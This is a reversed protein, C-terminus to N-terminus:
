RDAVSPYTVPTAVGTCRPRVRVVHSITMVSSSSRLTHVDRSVQMSRSIGAWYPFDLFPFFSFATGPKRASTFNRGRPLSVERSRVAANFGRVARGDRSPRAEDHESVAVTQQGVRVSLRSRHM